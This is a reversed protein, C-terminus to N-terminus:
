ADPEIGFLFLGHSEAEARIGDADIFLTGGAEYVIGALSAAAVYRVTEVGITPLDVRREQQPKPFKAFVGARREPTGIFNAPLEAIRALMNNTGEPGEVALVLKRCVVAGQGIDLGGVARAVETARRMDAEHLGIETKGQLGVPALLDTVVTDVALVELGCSEFYAVVLRLLQDDGVDAYQQAQEVLWLGGEDFKLTELNPRHVGGIIVIQQCNKSQFLDVARKLEGLDVWEHPYNAIDPSAENNIAVVFVTGGKETYRKATLEPLIGDGAVIGLTENGM